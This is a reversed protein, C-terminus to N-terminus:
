NNLRNKVVSARPVFYASFLIKIGLILIDAESILACVVAVDIEGGMFTEAIDSQVQLGPICSDKILCRCVSSSVFCICM